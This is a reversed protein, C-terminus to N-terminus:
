WSISGGVKIAYEDQFANTLIVSVRLRDGSRINLGANFDFSDGFDRLVPYEYGDVYEVDTEDRTVVGDERVVLHYEDVVVDYSEIMRMRRYVKTLGLQIGLAPVVQYEVGLPAALITQWQHQQWVFTKADDQTAEYEGYEYNYNEYSNYTYKQGTFPERADQVRDYHELYLGGYFKMNSQLQWDVGASLQFFGSEYRGTGTRDVEVRSRSAYNRWLSEYSSYYQNYYDSRRLMSESETLDASKWEASGGYRFTKENGQPLEALFRLYYGNGDYQWAKDSKYYSSNRYINSDVTSPIEDPNFEISHYRSTDFENFSRDLNGTIIGGNIAIRQKQPTTYSIGLNVDNMKTSQTRELDDDWYSEYEDVWDSRDNFQFDRYNGDVSARVMGLRAGITLRDSIAKSLFFNLQHEKSVSEDDGTERLRYDEYAVSSGADEYAAGLADRGYFYNFSYPQYFQTEDYSLSYSGGLVLAGESDGLRNLYFMRLSPEPIQEHSFERYPSWFAYDDMYLGGMEYNMSYGPSMDTGSEWLQESGLDMYFLHKHEGMPYTPDMFRFDPQSPYIYQFYEGMGMLAAAHMQLPRLFDNRVPFETTMVSYDPYWANLQPVLLTLLLLLLIPKFTKKM